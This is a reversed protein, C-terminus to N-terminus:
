FALKIDHVSHPSLLLDDEDDDAAAVLEDLRSMKSCIIQQPHEQYRPEVWCQWNYFKIHFKSRDEGPMSFM